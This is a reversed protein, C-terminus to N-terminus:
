TSGGGAPLAGGQIGSDVLRRMRALEASLVSAGLPTIRYYRRREDTEDTPAEAEGVLGDAEMRHLLRYLAGTQIKVRGESREAVDQMLGYGHRNGHHLSMLLWLVHIPLPLFAEPSDSSTQM